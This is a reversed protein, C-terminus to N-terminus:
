SPTNKGERQGCRDATFGLRASTDSAHVLLHPGAGSLSLSWSTVSVSICLYLEFCASSQSVCVGVISICASGVSPAEPPLGSSMKQRSSRTEKELSASEFAGCSRGPPPGSEGRSGENRSTEPQSHPSPLSCPPLNSAGTQLGSTVQREPPCISKLRM